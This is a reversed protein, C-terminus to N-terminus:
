CENVIGIPNNEVAELSGHIQLVESTDNHLHTRHHYSIERSLRVGEGESLRGVYRLFASRSEDLTDYIDINCIDGYEDMQSIHYEVVKLEGTKLIQESM